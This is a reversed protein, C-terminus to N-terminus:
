RSSPTVSRLLKRALPSGQNADLLAQLEQAAKDQMGAQAYLLGLTLHSDTFQRRARALEEAKAQELVKFRAEPAPPEPVVVERGDKMAKVQWSYIAGRPLPQPPRWENGTLSPSAMVRNFDADYVTVTYNAAGALPQWRFDPQNSEIVKAVPELLKFPANEGGGMLSGTKVNLMALDPTEVRGTTLARKIIQEYAPPLTLPSALRGQEDLTVRGGGDNLALLTAPAIVDSTPTPSHAPITPSVSAIDTPTPTERTRLLTVMLLFVLIAAFSAGALTPFRFFLGAWREAWAARKTPLPERAPPAAIAASFARLDRAEEGCMRCIELHSEAAEREMGNLREDVYAALLDYSLHEPQEGESPLSARLSQWAQAAPVSAGLQERCRECSALHDDAALLDTPALASRRYQELQQQSLHASM